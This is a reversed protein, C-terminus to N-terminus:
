DELLVGGDETWRVRTIGPSEAELRALELQQQSIVGKQCRVQDALRRHEIQGSDVKALRSGSVEDFAQFM